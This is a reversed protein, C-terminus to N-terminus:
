FVVDPRIKRTVWIEFTGGKEETGSRPHVYWLEYKNDPSLIVFCDRYNVAPLGSNDSSSIQVKCLGVMWNEVQGDEALGERDVIAALSQATDPTYVLVGDDDVIPVDDGDPCYLVAEAFDAVNLFVQEIDKEKSDKFAM